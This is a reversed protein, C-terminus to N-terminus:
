RKFAARAEKHAALEGLLMWPIEALSKEDDSLEDYPKLLTNIRREDDLTEGYQFNHLLYFRMSRNHEIKLLRDREEGEAKEFVAQAERLIKSDLEDFPKSPADEGLLIRVKMSIHDTSTYNMDKILSNLDEWMAVEGNVRYRFFEHCCLAMDSLRNHLVFAPTLVDRTQGFPTAISRVNSNYIYINGTIAFFKQITHLIFINNQESDDCLIIRDARGLLEEDANWFDEHFIVTDKTDSVSNISVIEGFRKRNTCYEKADGFVHYCIHQDTSYVNLEIARDLIVTGTKGFGILLIIEDKKKVPYTQWFMRATCDTLSFFNINLPHHSPTFNALCIVPVGIDSLSMSDLFNEMEDEKMCMIHADYLSGRRTILEKVTLPVSIFGQTHENDNTDAYIIMADPRVKKLNEAFIVAYMSKDTFIYWPKSSNMTLTVLPSIRSFFDVMFGVFFGLVGVGLILFVSAVIRGASTVPYSDGYGVTTFTALSYWIADGINKITAGPAGREAEVLLVLLFFYLIIAILFIIGYLKQKLNKPKEM